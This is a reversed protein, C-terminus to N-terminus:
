GDHRAIVALSTDVVRIGKAEAMAHAIKELLDPRERAILETWRRLEQELKKQNKADSLDFGIKRYEELEHSTFRISDGYRIM